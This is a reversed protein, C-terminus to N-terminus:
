NLQSLSYILIILIFLSIAIFCRDRLKIFLWLTLAVRLVQLFVLILLGLQIIGRASFNGAAQLIATITTYAPLGTHFTHYHIIDTGHKFLYLGGGFTVIAFCVLVGCLLLKGIALQLHEM